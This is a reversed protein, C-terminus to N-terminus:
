VFWKKENLQKLCNFLIHAKKKERVRRGFSL